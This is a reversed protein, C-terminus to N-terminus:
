IHADRPPPFSRAHERLGQFDPFLSRHSYGFAQELETRILQKSTVRLTFARVGPVNGQMPLNQSARTAHKYLILGFPLSMCERIEDARM